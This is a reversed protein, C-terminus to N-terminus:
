KHKELDNSNKNQLPYKYLTTHTNILKVDDM